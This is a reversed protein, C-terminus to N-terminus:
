SASAAIHARLDVCESYACTAFVHDRFQGTAKMEVLCTPCIPLAGGNFEHWIQGDTDVIPTVADFIEHEEPDRSSPYIAVSFPPLNVLRHAATATAGCDCELDITAQDM